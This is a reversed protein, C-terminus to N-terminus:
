HSPHHPLDRAFMGFLFREGKQSDGHVVPVLHTRTAHAHQSTHPKGQAKGEAPLSQLVQHRSLLGFAM